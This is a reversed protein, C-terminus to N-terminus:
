RARQMHSSKSGTDSPVDVEGLPFCAFFACVSCGTCCRRASGSFFLRWLHLDLLTNARGSQNSAQESMSGVEFTDDDGQVDVACFLFRGPPRDGSTRQTHWTGSAIDYLSITAFDDLTTRGSEYNVASSTQGGLPILLGGGGFGPVYQLQGYTFSGTSPFKGNTINSWMGTVMNYTVLGPVPIQIATNGKSDEDFPATNATRWNQVGGLSYGVGNGFASAARTVRVLSTFNATAAATLGLNSWTGSNGSPKFQWLENQRIGVDSSIWSM